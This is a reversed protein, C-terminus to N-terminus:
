EGGRDIHVVSPDVGFADRLTLIALRAARLADREGAHVWNGGGSGSLEDPSTWGLAALSAAIRSAEEDSTGELYVRGTAEMWLEGNSGTAQVFRNGSRSCFIVYELQAHAVDELCRAYTATLQDVGVAGSPPPPPLLPPTDVLTLTCSQAASRLAKRVSAGGCARHPRDLRCTRAARIAPSSRSTNWVAAGPPSAGIAAASRRM